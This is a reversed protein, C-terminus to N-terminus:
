LSPNVSVAGSDIGCEGFKIRFYGKEGWNATWSNQVVWYEENAEKGWGVIKVAHGGLLKQSKQTYVGSKYNLFDDYVNFGTNVPGNKFIEEKIAQPSTLWRISFLKARVVPCSWKKLFCFGTRKGTEGSKYEGFCSEDQAGVLSYYIFPTTLFGGNCGMEMLDCNVLQQPSFVHDIAGKSQICVRDSFVESASHAWCSGCHGQDRVPHVCEAKQERWDFHDPLDLNEITPELFMSLMTDKEFDTNLGLYYGRIEDESKNEFFPYTTTEYSVIASVMFTALLITKMM